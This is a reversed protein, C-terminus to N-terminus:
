TTHIDPKIFGASVCYDYWVIKYCIKYEVSIKGEWREPVRLVKM